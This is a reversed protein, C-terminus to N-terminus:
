ALKALSIKNTDVNHSFYANKLFTDGVLWENAGGVNGASIGSICDTGSDDLPQFALDRPDITFEQGGFTMAVSSNTNCPVTFSGDGADAAGDIMQHIATADDQPIVMLTTGTDLIATRGTLGLDQGDVSGSDIAAEWFGQKSVNDMEVLTNKDFKTEDLAGFTVEGDNKEDALRPIKYSTIAASILGQSKLAEPPTPVGQESLTSQALGMIGDFPTTDGTFDQSEQTTVGFQHGTLTLNGMTLDDSGIVGAAAGTGYQIQWQKDTAKFSGSSTSLFNHQGCDGGTEISQCQDSGVWLDASGSDMLLLFDQAPSGISVTALYGVDNSEIDLGLSNDATPTNAATVDSTVAGSASSSASAGTPTGASGAGPSGASETASPTAAGQGSGSAKAGGKGGSSSGSSSSQSGRGDAEGGGFGLAAGIAAALGGDNSKGKQAGAFGRHNGHAFSSTGNFAAPVVVNSHGVRILGRKDNEADDTNPRWVNFRKYVQDEQLMAVRRELNRRLADNSPAERGSMKALRKLGRNRHQTMRIQPHVTSKSEFRQLPMSVRKASRIPVASATLALILGALLGLFPFTLQM